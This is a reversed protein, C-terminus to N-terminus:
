PVRRGSKEWPAFDLDDPNLKRMFDHHFDDNDCGISCHYEFNTLKRWCEDKHAMTPGKKCLGNFQRSMTNCHAHCQKRMKLRRDMQELGELEGAITGPNPRGGGGRGGTPIIEVDDPATGPPMPPPEKGPLRPAKVGVSPTGDPTKPENPFPDYPYQPEEDPSHNPGPSPSRKGNEGEEYNINDMPAPRKWWEPMREERLLAVASHFELFTSIPSVSAITGEENRYYYFGLTRGRNSSLSVLEGASGYTPTIVMGDSYTLRAFRGSRDYDYQGVITSPGTDIHEEVLRGEEYLYLIKGEATEAIYPRGLVNYMQIPSVRIPTNLVPSNPAGPLPIARKVPETLTKRGEGSTPVAPKLVQAIAASGAIALILAFLGISIRRPM